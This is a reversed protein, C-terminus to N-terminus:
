SQSPQWTQSPPTQRLHLLPGPPRRDQSQIAWVEFKHRKVVGGEVGPSLACGRPVDLMRHILGTVAATEGGQGTIAQSPMPRIKSARPMKTSSTPMELTQEDQRAGM